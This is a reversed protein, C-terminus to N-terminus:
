RRMTHRASRDIGRRWRLVFEGIAIAMLIPGLIVGGALGWPTVSEDSRSAAWAGVLLAVLGVLFVVGTVVPWVM